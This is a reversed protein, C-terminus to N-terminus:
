SDRKYRLWNFYKAIIVMVDAGQRINAPRTYHILDAGLLYNQGNHIVIRSDEAALEDCATRIAPLGAVNFGVSNVLGSVKGVIIMDYRKVADLGEIIAALDTKFQETTRGSNADNEGGIFLMVFKGNPDAAARAALRTIGPILQSDYLSGSYRNFNTGGDDWIGTSGLGYKEWDATKTTTQLTDWDYSSQLEVGFTNGDNNSNTLATWALGDWINAKGNPGNLYVPISQGNTNGLANSQSWLHLYLNQNSEIEYPYHDRYTVNTTTGNYGNSSSDTFDGQTRYYAVINNAFSSTMRDFVRGSNYDETIETQDLEKNIFTIETM